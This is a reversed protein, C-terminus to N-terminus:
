NNDPTLTWEYSGTNQNQYTGKLTGDSQASQNVGGMYLWMHQQEGIEMTKDECLPEPPQLLLRYPCCEKYPHAKVPTSSSITAGANYQAPDNDTFVSLYGDGPYIPYTDTFSAPDGYCPGTPYYVPVTYQTQTVTGGTTTYSDVGASSHAPDSEFTVNDTTIEWVKFSDFPPLFYLTAKSTGKYKGTNDYTGRNGQTADRGSRVKWSGDKKIVNEEMLVRADLTDFVDVEATFGPSTSTFGGPNAEYGANQLPQLAHTHYFSFDKTKSTFILKKFGAFKFDKQQYPDSYVEGGPGNLGGSARVYTEWMPLGDSARVIYTHIIPLNAQMSSVKINTGSGAQSRECWFQYGPPISGTTATNSDGFWCMGLIEATSEESIEIRDVRTPGTVVVGGGLDISGPDPVTFSSWFAGPTASGTGSASGGVGYSGTRNPSFQMQGSGPAPDGSVPIARPTAGAANSAAGGISQLASSGVRVASASNLDYLLGLTGKNVTQDTINVVLKLGQGGAGNATGPLFMADCEVSDITLVIRLQTLTTIGSPLPPLSGSGNALSLYINNLSAPTQLSGGAGILAIRTGAYLTLQSGGPSTATITSLVTGTADLEAKVAAGPLGIQTASQTTACSQTSTGSKNGANDYALVTYCYETSPALGSDSFSSTATTGVNTGARYVVYGTVGVNDTSADWKLNIQNAASATAQLNAPITPSQTDIVPPDPPSIVVGDVVVAGFRIVFVGKLVSYGTQTSFLTDLGGRFHVTGPHYAVLNEPFAGNQSLITAGDPAANFADQLLSYYGSAGGEIMVPPLTQAPTFTATCNKVGDVNIMCPNTTCSSCSGGWVGFSSNSTPVAALVLLAGATYTSSCTGAQPPYTCAITTDPSYSNVSGSGSGSISISVNFGTSNADESSLLCAVLVTCFLALFKNM